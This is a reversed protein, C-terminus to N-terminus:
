RTHLINGPLSITEQRTCFRCSFNLSCCLVRLAYQPLLVWLSFSSCLYYYNYRVEAYRNHYHFNLPEALLLEEYCHAAFDFRHFKYYHPTFTPSSSLFCTLWYCTNYTKQLQMSTELETLLHPSKCSNESNSMLTFTVLSKGPAPTLWSYRSTTM